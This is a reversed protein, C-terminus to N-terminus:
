CLNALHATSARSARGTAGPPRTDTRAAGRSGPGSLRIGLPAVAVKTNRTRAKGWGRTQPAQLLTPRSPFSPHGGTEVGRVDPSHAWHLLQAWCAPPGGLPLLTNEPGGRSGSRPKGPLLTQRTSTDLGGPGPRGSPSAPSCYIWERVLPEGGVDGWFHLWPPWLQRRAAWVLINRKTRLM